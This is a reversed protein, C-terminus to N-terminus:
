RRGKWGYCVLSVLSERQKKIKSVTLWNCGLIIMSEVFKKNPTSMRQNEAIRPETHAFQQCENINGCNETVDTRHTYIAEGKNGHLSTKVLFIIYMFIDYSRTQKILNGFTTGYCSTVIELNPCFPGLNINPCMKSFKHITVDHLNRFSQRM